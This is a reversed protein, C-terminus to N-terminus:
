EREQETNNQIAKERNQFSSLQLELAEIRAKLSSNEDALSKNVQELHDYQEQLTSKKPAQPKRLKSIEEYLVKNSLSMVNDVVEALNESLGKNLILTIYQLQKVSLNKEVVVQGLAFQKQKDKVSIILAIKEIGLKKFINASQCSNICKVCFKYAKIHKEAQTRKLMVRENKLLENFIKKHEKDTFHAEQFQSLVSGIQVINVTKKQKLEAIKEACENLSRACKLNVKFGVLLDQVIQEKENKVLQLDETSSTEVTFLGKVM